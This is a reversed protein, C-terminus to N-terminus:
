GAAPKRYPVPRQHRGGWEIGPSTGLPRDPDGPSSEPVQLDQRSNGVILDTLSDPPPETPILDSLADYCLRTTTDM